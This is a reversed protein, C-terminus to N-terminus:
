EKLRKSRRPSNPEDLQKRRRPPARGKAQKRPEIIVELKPEVVVELQKPSEAQLDENEHQLKKGGQQIRGGGQGARGGSRGARGGARGVSVGDDGNRSELPTIRNKLQKIESRLLDNANQLEKNERRLKTLEADKRTGEDELRHNMDQLKKNERRLKTLEVDQCTGEDKLLDDNRGGPRGNELRLRGLETKHKQCESVRKELQKRLGDISGRSSDLEKELGNNQQILEAMEKAYANRRVEKMWEEAHSSQEAVGPSKFRRNLAQLQQGPEGIGSPTGDGEGHEVSTERSDSGIDEAQPLDPPEKEIKQIQEIVSAIYETTARLREGVADRDTLLAELEEGLNVINKRIDHVELEAVLRAVEKRRWGFRKIKDQHKNIRSHCYDSFRAAANLLLGQQVGFDRLISIERDQYDIEEVLEVIELNINSLQQEQIDTAQIDTAQDAPLSEPDSLRDM